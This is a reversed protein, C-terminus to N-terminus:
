CCRNIKNWKKNLQKLYFEKQTLHTCKKNNIIYKQYNNEGSLEKLFFWIKKFIKKM